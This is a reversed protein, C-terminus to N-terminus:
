QTKVYNVINTGNPSGWGTPYDWNPGANYGPGYGNGNNGTTVDHFKQHYSTSAGITYLTPNANGTRAGSKAEVALAWLAAWNPAGYSTGYGTYWNGQYYTNIGTAESADFSVDTVDRKKNTPVGPGKQWTPKTFQSSIGGGSSIWTTESSYKNKSTLYLNTGGVSTFNPDSSPFDVALTKSTPSCAYAGNDGSAVFMTMGEASEQKFVGDLTKVYSGAESECGIWSTSVVQSSDDSAIQNHNLVTNAWSSNPIEYVHINAGTAQAGVNEVDLTTEYNPTTSGGNVPVVTLSGTRTIAYYSWFFDPDSQTYAYSTAIAITVGTGDYTTTGHYANNLNPLEYASALQFPSYYLDSASRIAAPQGHSSAHFTELSSLGTVSEVNIGIALPLSPNRDNAFHQSGAVTYDNISVHFAQEVQAVTGRVHVLKRNPAVTMVVLGQSELYKTLGDADAQAPAFRNIFGGASLFRQYDPSNHDHLNTLLDDLEQENQWKLGVVVELVANPNSHGVLTSSSL